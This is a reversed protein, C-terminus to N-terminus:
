EVFHHIEDARKYSHLEKPTFWLAIETKAEEINGSAHVINASASNKSNAYALSQHAFDGRITGPLASKPETDGVIKRVVEVAHVGEIVAAVVPGATLFKLLKDRVYKGRRKEIDETYHKRAFDEDIWIMKLGIIKLGRQELRRLVEGILGRQVGDPKVLVLTREIM